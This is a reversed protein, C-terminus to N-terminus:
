NRVYMGKLFLSILSDLIEKTNLSGSEHGYFPIELSKLTILITQATKTINDINFDGSQVGESLISTIVELETNDFDVRNMNIFHLHELLEHKMANYYNGLKEFASMRGHVYSTFKEVPKKKKSVM